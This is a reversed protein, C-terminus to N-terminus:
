AFAVFPYRDFVSGRSSSIGAPANGYPDSMEETGMSPALSMAGAM